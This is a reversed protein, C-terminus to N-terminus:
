MGIISRVISVAAARLSKKRHVQTMTRNNANCRKQQGTTPWGRALNRGLTRRTGFEFAFRSGIRLRAVVDLRAVGALPLERLGICGLEHVVRGIRNRRM